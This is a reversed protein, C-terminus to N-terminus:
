RPPTSHPLPFSASNGTRPSVPECQWVTVTPVVCETTTTPPRHHNTPQNTPQNTTRAHGVIQRRYDPDHRHGIANRGLSGLTERNSDLVFLMWLKPMPPRHRGLFSILIILLVTLCWTWLARQARPRASVHVPVYRLHVCIDVPLQFALFQNPLQLEKPSMPARKIIAEFLNSIRRLSKSNVLHIGCLKSTKLSLSSVSYAPITLLVKIQRTSNMTKMRAGFIDAEKEHM